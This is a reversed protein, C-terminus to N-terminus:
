YKWVKGSTALTKTLSFTAPNNAEVMVMISFSVSSSGGESVILTLGNDYKKYFRM